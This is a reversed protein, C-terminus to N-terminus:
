FFEVPRINETVAECVSESLRAEFEEASQFSTLGAIEFHDDDQSTWNLIYQEISLYM